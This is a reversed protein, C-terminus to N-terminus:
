YETSFLRHTFTLPLQANNIRTYGSNIPRLLYDTIKIAYYFSSSTYHVFQIICSSNKMKHGGSIM